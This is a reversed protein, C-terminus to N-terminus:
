LEMRFADRIWRMDGNTEAVVDFRVELEEAQRQKALYAQGARWLRMQKAKTVFVEASGFAQSKRSKVEVFVLVNGDKAVIDLEGFRYSM